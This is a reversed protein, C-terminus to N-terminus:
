WWYIPAYFRTIPSYMPYHPICCNKYQHLSSPCCSSPRPIRLLILYKPWLQLNHHCGQRVGPWQPFPPWPQTWGVTAERHCVRLTINQPQAELLIAGREGLGGTAGCSWELSISTRPSTTMFSWFESARRGTTASWCLTLWSVLPQYWIGGVACHVMSSELVVSLYTKFKDGGGDMWWKM